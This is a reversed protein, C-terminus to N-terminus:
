ESKQIVISLPLKTGTDLFDLNQFIVPILTNDRIDSKNILICISNLDVETKSDGFIFGYADPEKFDLIVKLYKRETIKYAELYAKQVNM